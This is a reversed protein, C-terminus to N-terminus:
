NISQIDVQFFMNSAPLFPVVLFLLGFALSKKFSRCDEDTISLDTEESINDNVDGHRNVSYATGSVKKDYREEDEIKSFDDKDMDDEDKMKSFGDGESEIKTSGNTLATSDIGDSEIKSGDGDSKMKRSGDGYSKM